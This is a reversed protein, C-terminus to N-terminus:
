QFPALRSSLVQKHLAECRAASASGKARVESIHSGAALLRLPLCLALPETQIQTRLADDALRKDAGQDKGQSMEVGFVSQHALPYGSGLVSGPNLTETARPKVGFLATIIISTSFPVRGNGCGATSISSLGPSRHRSSEDDRMDIATIACVWVCARISACSLTHACLCYVSWGLDVDALKLKASRIFAHGGHRQM